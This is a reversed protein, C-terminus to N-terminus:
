LPNRLYAAEMKLRLIRKLTLTLCLVPNIIFDLVHFIHDYYLRGKYKNVVFELREVSYDYTETHVEDLAEIPQM